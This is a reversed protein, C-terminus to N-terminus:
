VPSRNDIKFKNEFNQLQLKGELDFIYRSAGLILFFIGLLFVVIIVTHFLNKLKEKM